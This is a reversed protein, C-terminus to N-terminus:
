TMDGEALFLDEQVPDLFGTTWVPSPKVQKPLGTLATPLAPLSKISFYGDHKGCISGNNGGM